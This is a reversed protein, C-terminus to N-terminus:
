DGFIEGVWGNFLSLLWSIRMWDKGKNENFKRGMWLRFLFGSYFVRERICFFFFAVFFKKKITKRHLSLSFFIGCRYFFSNRNAMTSIKKHRYGCYGYCMRGIVHRNPAFYEAHTSSFNKEISIKCLSSAALRRIHFDHLISLSDIKQSFKLLWNKCGIKPAYFFSKLFKEYNGNFFIMELKLSLPYLRETKIYQLPVM